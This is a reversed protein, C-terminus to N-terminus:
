VSRCVRCSIRLVDVRTHNHAHDAQKGMVQRSQPLCAPGVPEGRVYAFLQIIGSSGCTAIFRGCPSVALSYHDAGIPESCVVTTHSADVAAANGGASPVGAGTVAAASPTVSPGPTQSQSATAAPHSVPQQVQLRYVTLRRREGVVM